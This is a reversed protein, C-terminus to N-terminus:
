SSVFDYLEVFDLLPTRYVTLDGSSERGDLSWPFLTGMREQQPTARTDFKEAMERIFEREEKKWNRLLALAELITTTQNKKLIADRLQHLKTRGLRRENGSKLQALLWELDTLTYPRMTAYFEHTTHAVNKCHLEEYQKQYNTSTNGTVVVFNVRSQEQEGTTSAQRPRLASAEKAAKLTEKVLTHQLSFPYKVPALLVGISLTRQTFQQFRSALTYAVQMAKDAPTVMVIDDGGVLLVDFPFYDGQLPLHESIAQGMAAFVGEDIKEAFNKVENLTPLDDLARGMNNADAYILGLYEKGHAFKRFENFDPPRQPRPGREPLYGPALSDLVRGWLTQRLSSIGYGEALRHKINRDERRKVLCVRCYRGEDEPEDSDRWLEHAYAMGCSECPCLLSHSPLAISASMTDQRAADRPSMKVQLSDKALRLRLRLLKLVDKMTVGGELREADLIDRGDDPDPVDQISYTISAGGGTKERYREQVAQGLAEAKQSDVLFLASGGCAYIRQARFDKGQVIDVTEYRNLRDLISSAGRIEKLRNTGLVYDQIHDTDLAILSQSVM